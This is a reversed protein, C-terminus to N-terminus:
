KAIQYTDWNLFGFGAIGEDEALKKLPFLAQAAEYNSLNRTLNLLLVQKSRHDEFPVHCFQYGCHGGKKEFDRIADEGLMGGFHDAAHAVLRPHITYPHLNYQTHVRVAVFLGEVLLKNAAAVIEAKKEDTM